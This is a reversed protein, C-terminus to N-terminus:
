VEKIIVHLEAKMNNIYLEQCPGHLKRQTCWQSPHQSLLWRLHQKASRTNPQRWPYLLLWRQQWAPYWNALYRRLGTQGKIWLEKARLVDSNGHHWMGSCQAM